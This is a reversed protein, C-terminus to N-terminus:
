GLVKVLQKAPLPEESVFLLAEIVPKLEDHTATIEAQAEPEEIFPEDHEILISEAADAHDEIQETEETMLLEDELAAFDFEDAENDPAPDSAPPVEAPAHPLSRPLEAEPTETLKIEENSM